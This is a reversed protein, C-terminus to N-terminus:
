RLRVSGKLRNWFSTFWSRGPAEDLEKVLDDYHSVNSKPQRVSQPIPYEKAYRDELLSYLANVQRMEKQENFPEVPTVLADNSKPSVAPAPSQLKQLRSQMVKQFHVHAPRVRDLPWQKIIRAWHKFVVSQNAAM